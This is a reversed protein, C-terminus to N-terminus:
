GDGDHTVFFLSALLTLYIVLCFLVACGLSDSKRLFLVGDANSYTLIYEGTEMM